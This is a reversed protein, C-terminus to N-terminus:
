FDLLDITPIEEIQPIDLEKINGNYFENLDIKLGNYYLVGNQIDKLVFYNQSKKCKEIRQELSDNGGRYSNNKILFYTTLVNAIVNSRFKLYSVIKNKDISFCKAHWFIKELKYINNFYDFYYQSFLASIENSHDDHEKDLDNIVNSPKPFIFSIEDSGLMAYCNYKKTFYKACAEMSNIFSGPYNNLFDNKRTKTANKGDLRIILSDKKSVRMSYKKQIQYFYSHWM